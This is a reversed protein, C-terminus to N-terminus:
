ELPESCYFISYKVAKHRVPHGLILIRQANSIHVSSIFADVGAPNFTFQLLDSGWGFESHHTGACISDRYM